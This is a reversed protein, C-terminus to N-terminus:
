LQPLQLPPVAAAAVLGNGVFYIATFLFITRHFYVVVYLICNLFSQVACSAYKM